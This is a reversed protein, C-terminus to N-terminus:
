KFNPNLFRDQEPIPYFYWEDTVSASTAKNPFDFSYSMSPLQDKLNLRIIDFWRGDPEGALEWSREKVVSDAFQEASLGPTLDFVSPSYIDLHNARRRIRNIMEYASADLNGSRAKAEAYTLLTHAYRLLYLTVESLASYVSYKEAFNGPDYKENTIDIWKKYVAGRIFECPEKIPDFPSFQMVYFSTDMTNYYKAGYTGIVFTQEKRYNLPFDVYFKIEPNYSSELNMSAWEGEMNYSLMYNAINNMENDENGKFFLGFLNEKNHKYDEKWLSAFDDLLAFNYYDAREIVEGALRAAEAYKGTDYLPFGAMSLYVEALLAKATGKHPTEGSVRAETYTEPLLEIANLLEEEIFQFMEQHTPKELTYSVDTDKVLPPTGFLRALKLYCYARLFHLEGLLYKDEPEKLTELLTNINIIATYLFSYKESAIDTYDIQNSASAGCNIRGDELYFMYSIYQNLDDARGTLSFYNYNHVKVLNSYIGNMMEVKEEETDIALYKNVDKYFEDECSFLLLFSLITIYKKM